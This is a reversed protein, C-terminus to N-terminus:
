EGQETTQAEDTQAEESPTDLDLVFEPHLGDDTTAADIDPMMRDKQSHLAM